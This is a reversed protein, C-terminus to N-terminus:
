ETPMLLTNPDLIQLLQQILTNEAAAAQEVSAGPGTGVRYNSIARDFLTQRVQEEVSPAEARQPMLGRLATLEAVNYQALQRAANAQVQEPTLSARPQPRTARAPPTTAATVAAAIPDAPQGRSARTPAPGAARAFAAEAADTAGVLAAASGLVQQGIRGQAERAQPTSVAQVNRIGPFMTAMVRPFVGSLAEATSQEPQSPAPPGMVPPIAPSQGRTQRTQQNGAMEDRGLGAASESARDIHHM